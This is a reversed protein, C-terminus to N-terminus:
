SGAEIEALLSDLDESMAPQAEAGAKTETSTADTWPSDSGKSTVSDPIDEFDGDSSAAPKNGLRPKDKGKGLQNPAAGSTVHRLANLAKREMEDSEQAVFEDLNVPTPKGKLAHRKASPQVTYKTDNTGTGTREVIIIQPNTPDFVQEAWEEVVNVLGGFALKGLELVQPTDPTDTDLALVNVLFKTSARAEKVLAAVEEDNVGKTRQVETLGDCIACPRGFTENACVYVAQLQDAADKIYHSAFDHWFQPDDGERWSPLLVYRNQGQKPKITRGASKLQAKKKKLMEQLKSFNSM